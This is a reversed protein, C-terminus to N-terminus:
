YVNSYIKERMDQLHERIELVENKLGEIKNELYLIYQQDTDPSTIEEETGESKVIKRQLIRAKERAKEWSHLSKRPALLRKLDKEFHKADSSQGREEVDRREKHFKSQENEYNIERCNVEVGGGLPRVDNDNYNNHTKAKKTRLSHDGRISDVQEEMSGEEGRKEKEKEKERGQRLRLNWERTTRRARLSPM